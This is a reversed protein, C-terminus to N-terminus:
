MTDTIRRDRFAPVVQLTIFYVIISLFIGIIFSGLIMARTIDFGTELLEPFSRWSFDIAATIGLFFAGIKYSGIYFFPLTIPNSVWVGIAAAIRSGKLLIALVLAIPTHFPFFPTTGVFAGIAMGLALYHPDGKTHKLGAILGRYRRYVKRSLTM